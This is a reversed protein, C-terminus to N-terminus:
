TEIQGKTGIHNRLVPFCIVPRSVLTVGHASAEPQGGARDEEEVQEAWTRKALHGGPQANPGWATREPGVGGEREDEEVFSAGVRASESVEGLKWASGGATEKPKPTVSPTSEAAQVALLDIVLAREERPPSQHSAREPSERVVRAAAEKEKARRQRGSLPRETDMAPASGKLSERLKRRSMVNVWEEEEGGFADEDPANALEEEGALLELVEPPTELNSAVVPEEVAPESIAAQVEKAAQSATASSEPFSIEAVSPEEEVAKPKGKEGASPAGAKSGKEKATVKSEKGKKEKGKQKADRKERAEGDVAKKGGEEKGANKEVKGAGKGEKEAGKEEKGAGREEKSAGKGDGAALAGGKGKTALALSKGQSEGVKREAQAMSERMKKESERLVDALVTCLVPDAASSQSYREVAAQFESLTSAQGIQM